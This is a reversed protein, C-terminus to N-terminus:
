SAPATEGDPLYLLGDAGKALRAPDPDALKIRDVVALTEPGQGVPQISITGDAGVLVSGYPPLAVPGGEGVVPHGAGTTLIGGSGIRLDGARTYAERGDAGQVAIFGRGQVAVDLDRGTSVVPGQAFSTAYPRVVANVRSALGSGAVPEASFAHLDARFGTTSANALNNGNIAQAYETQKAGTMALYIMRDM